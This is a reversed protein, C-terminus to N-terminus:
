VRNWGIGPQRVFQHCEISEFSVRDIYDLRQIQIQPTEGTPLIDILHFSNPADARTRWSLCTGAVSIILPKEIGPYRASSLSVLPDHIHGGLVLDVQQNSLAAMMGDAGRLINKEDVRKPCDLPHHLGVIRVPARDPHKSLFKKMARLDIEGQVHRYRRTSALGFIEVGELPLRKKLHGKLIRRYGFYPHLLRGFINFLPIDHNGPVVLVPIPELERFFRRADRFQRLRARQTIDGTVVIASPALSKLSQLLAARVDPEVTGFHPDSIHAVRVKM